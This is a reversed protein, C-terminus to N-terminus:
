DEPTTNEAGCDWCDWVAPVEVEDCCDCADGDLLNDAGCNWCTYHLHAV